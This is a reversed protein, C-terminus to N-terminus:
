TENTNRGFLQLLLYINPWEPITINYETHNYNQANVVLSQGVSKVGAWVFYESLLIMREPSICPSEHFEDWPELLIFM